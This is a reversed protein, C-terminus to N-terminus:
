EEADWTITAASAGNDGNYNTKKMSYYELKIWDADRVVNSIRVEDIIGDFYQLNYLGLRGITTGQGTTPKTAAGASAESSVAVSAGDVYLTPTGTGTNTAALYAFTGASLVTDTSQWARYDSGSYDWEISLKGANRGFRWAVTAGANCDGLINAVGAAVSDTKAWASFTLNTPIAIATELAIRESSSATLDRGKRIIGDAETTTNVDTGDNSSSTSDKAEPSAAWSNDGLHQVLIYNGDWTNPKNDQDVATPDNGYAVYVINDNANNGTVTGVKVWYVAESTDPNDTDSYYEVEYPLYTTQDSAYFRVRKGNSNTADFFHNVEADTPWSSANIHVCIPFNSQTTAVNAGTSTTNINLPKHYTWSAYTISTGASQGIVITEMGYCPTVFLLLFLIIKTLTQM